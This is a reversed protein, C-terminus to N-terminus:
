IVPRFFRGLHNRRREVYMRLIMTLIFTISFIIITRWRVIERLVVEWASVSKLSRVENSMVVYVDKLRGMVLLADSSKGQRILEALHGFSTEPNGEFLLDSERLSTAVIDAHYDSFLKAVEAKREASLYHSSAINFEAGDIVENLYIVSSVNEDRKRQEIMRVVFNPDIPRGDLAMREVVGVVSAKVVRARELEATISQNEAVRLQYWTAVVTIILGVIASFIYGFWDKKVGGSETSNYQAVSTADNSM